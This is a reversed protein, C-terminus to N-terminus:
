ENREHLTPTEAEHWTGVQGAVGLPVQGIQKQYVADVTQRGVFALLTALGSDRLDLIKAEVESGDAQVYHVIAGLLLPPSAFTPNDPRSPKQVVAPRLARALDAANKEPHFTHLVPPSGLKKDKSLPPDIVDPDFHPIAAAEAKAQQEKSIIPEAQRTRRPALKM